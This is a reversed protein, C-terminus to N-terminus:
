TVNSMSCQRLIELPHKLRYMMQEEKTRKRESQGKKHSLKEQTNEIVKVSLTDNMAKCSIFKLGVHRWRILYDAPGLGM